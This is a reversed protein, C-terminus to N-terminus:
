FLHGDSATYKVKVKPLGIAVLQVSYMVFEHGIVVHQVHVQIGLCVRGRRQGHANGTQSQSHGSGCRSKGLGTDNVTASEKAPAGGQGSLIESLSLSSAILQRREEFNLYDMSNSRQPTVIAVSKQMMVMGNGSGNSQLKFSNNLQNNVLQQQHQMHESMPSQPAVGPSPSHQQQQHQQAAILQGRISM